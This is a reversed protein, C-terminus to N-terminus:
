NLVVTGPDVIKLSTIYKQLFASVVIAVLIQVVVASAFITPQPQSGSAQGFFATLFTNYTQAPSGSSLLWSYFFDNWSFLFALVAGAAIGPRALPLLIRRFAASRSAGDVRAAKELDRPLAAFFGMLIWTIIPITISLHVIVIGPITGKLGIDSFLFYYPLAVSVPPLTRSGLLLAILANRGSLNMRGLAYGAPTCVAITIITVLSAILLSNALGQKLGASEAFAEGSVTTLTFGFLRLYNGLNPSPPFIQGGVLDRPDMFSVSFLNYIPALSYVAALIALFILIVRRRTVM